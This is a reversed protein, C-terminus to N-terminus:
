YGNNKIGKITIFIDETAGGFKKVCIEANKGMDILRKKDKYLKIFSDENFKIAGQAEFLNKYDDEFNYFNPGTFIPIAFKAPEFPNHGGHNKFAGGLIVFDALSYLEGLEGIKDYIIFNIGHPIEDNKSLFKIHEGKFGNRIALDSIFEAREPHRPAIILILDDIELKLKNFLSFIIEEEGHHTSAALIIKKDSITKKLAELKDNNIELKEADHKINGLFKINEYGLKKLWNHTKTNQSSIFKFSDLLYILSKKAYGWYQFSKDSFRTNILLLPIKRKKCEMIFNPWIESEVFIALEVNLRNLFRNTYIPTDYPIYQHKVSNPFVKKFLNASSVTTTTIFIDYNENLLKQVLPRISLLEGVSAAHLWIYSDAKNDIDVIGFREKKRKWEEKKRISRIVFIIWTFLNLFYTFAKYIIILFPPFM